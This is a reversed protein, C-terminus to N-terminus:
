FDLIYLLVYSCLASIISIIHFGELVQRLGECVLGKWFKPRRIVSVDQQGSDELHEVRKM